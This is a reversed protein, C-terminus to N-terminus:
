ILLDIMQQVNYGGLVMVLWNILLFAIMILFFGVIANQITKKGAAIKEQNGYSTSLGYAGWFVFFLAVLWSAGIFFNTIRLVMMILDRITCNDPGAACRVLGQASATDAVAFVLLLSLSVVILLKSKMM